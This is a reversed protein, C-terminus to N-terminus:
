DNINFKFGELMNKNSILQKMSVNICDTWFKTGNRTDTDGEKWYTGYKDLSNIDIGGLIFAETFRNISKTKNDKKRLLSIFYYYDPRQHSHNYIPISNDYHIKPIVTRDKTKLELKLNNNILYDHTTENRCDSFNVKNEILFEELIVEGLFGVQNADKKRHSNKYIPANEIRYNAISYHNENILKKKYTSAM